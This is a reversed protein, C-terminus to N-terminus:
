LRSMKQRNQEKLLHPPSFIIKGEAIMANAMANANHNRGQPKFVLSSQTRERLGSVRLLEQVYDNRHRVCVAKFYVKKVNYSSQKM